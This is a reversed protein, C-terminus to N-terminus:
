AASGRRRLPLVRGPEAGAPPAAPEGGRSAEGTRAPVARPRAAQYLRQLEPDTRLAERLEDRLLAREESPLPLGSLGVAEDLLEEIYADKHEDEDM